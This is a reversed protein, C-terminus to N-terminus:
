LEVLGVKIVQITYSPVPNWSDGYQMMNRQAVAPSEGIYVKAYDIDDTWQDVANAKRNRSRTYYKHNDFRKIIFM